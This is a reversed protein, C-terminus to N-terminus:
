AGIGLEAGEVVAIWRWTESAIGTATIKLSENTDDATIDISTGAAEDVGITEVSGVLSTTNTIRKISVQRMYKAVASGDSKSGLITVKAHVATNTLLVIRGTGAASLFLEVAANTTTKGALTHLFSQADGNTAFGTGAHAKMGRRHARSFIGTAISGDGSALTLQNL